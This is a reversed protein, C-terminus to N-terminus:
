LFFSLFGRRRAVCPCVRERDVADDVALLWTQLTFPLLPLPPSVRHGGSNDITTAISAVLQM